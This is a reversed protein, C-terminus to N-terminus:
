KGWNRKSAGELDDVSLLGVGEEALIDWIHNRLGIPWATTDWYRALLGREKAGRIQERLVNVQKPSLRGLWPRGIVKPMSVSAYLSNTHNYMTANVLAHEGWLQDLPADFFIERFKGRHSVILDFPTNGTGVVTVPGPIIASGNYYTLWSQSRLPELSELVKPLTAAGDSKIDVLLVLTTNPNM